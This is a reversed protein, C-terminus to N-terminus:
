EAEVITKTWKTTISSPGHRYKCMVTKRPGQGTGLVYYTYFVYNNFAYIFFDNYQTM